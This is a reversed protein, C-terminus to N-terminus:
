RLIDRYSVFTNWKFINNALFMILENAVAVAAGAAGAVVGAGDHFTAVHQGCNADQPWASCEKLGVLRIESLLSYSHIPWMFQKMTFLILMVLLLLLLMEVSKWQNDM